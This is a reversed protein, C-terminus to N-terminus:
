DLGLSSLLSRVARTRDDNDATAAKLHDATKLRRELFLIRCIRRVHCFPLLWRKEILIPYLSKMFRYPPFIRSFLYRLKGGRTVRGAAVANELNGFTGASLVYAEFALSVDDHEEGSFWVRGLKKLANYFDLYRYKALLELPEASSFRPDRLLIWLDLIPKIGCGGGIVHRAAHVVHYFLFIKDDLLYLRSGEASPEASAWVDSLPKPCVEDQMLAFHLEFHGGSASTLSVDRDSRKEEVFGLQTVLLEVARDVDQRRVLVDTDGSTRMWGEPYFSRIVAGKLPIHDIGQETFLRSLEALDTAMQEGRLVAHLQKRELAAALQPSSPTHSLKSLAYAVFHVADHYGALEAVKATTQDVECYETAGSESGVATGILSFLLKSTNAESM